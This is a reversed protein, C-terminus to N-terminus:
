NLMESLRSLGPKKFATRIVQELVHTNRDRIYSLATFVKKDDRTGVYLSGDATWIRIQAWTCFVLENAALFKHRTLFAGGDRLVLGSFRVEEGRQLIHLLEAVLRVGVATWLRPIFESFVKERNTVVVAESSGTGFAITYKTGTPIGNVSHRVAGWRMHTIADLPYTHGKWSVGGPSITLQDKLVIGIEASYTIEKNWQESKAAAEDRQDSIEKLTQADAQTREAVEPVDSFQEDLLKVLRKSQALLNFKNFLSVSLSRVVDAVERSSQHSIGRAKAGMKIPYAIRNWNKTVGELKALIPEVVHAGKGALEEAATALKRINDAEKQLFGQSEVEYSDILEDVLRPAHTEGCETSETVVLRMVSVLDEPALLDIAGKISNRLLKSRGGLEADLQEGSRVESFGSIARDENIERLMDDVSVAELRDAIAVIVTALGEPQKFSQGTELVAAFLNAAAMTPLGGADLISAPNTSLQHMASEARKPSLGPLWALEASLRTRPNILDSRAKECVSPDIQLAREEAAELIRKKNDRTTVRLIWFPNLELSVSPRTAPGGRRVPEDSEGGEIDKGPRMGNPEFLEIEISDPDKLLMHVDSQKREFEGGCGEHVIADGNEDMTKGCSLCHVIGHLRARALIRWPAEASIVVAYFEQLTREFTDDSDVKRTVYEKAKLIYDSIDQDVPIREVNRLAQCGICWRVRTLIPAYCKSGELLYVPRM